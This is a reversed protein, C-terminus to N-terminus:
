VYGRTGSQKKTRELMQVALQAKDFLIASNVKVTAPYSLFNAKKTRFPCTCAGQVWASVSASVINSQAVYEENM